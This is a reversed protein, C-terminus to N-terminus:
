PTKGEAQAKREDLAAQLRIILEEIHEIPATEISSALDGVVILGQPVLGRKELLRDVGEKIRRCHEMTTDKPVTIILFEDGKPIPVTFAGSGAPLIIPTNM